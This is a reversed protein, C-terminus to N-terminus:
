DLPESPGARRHAPLLAAEELAWLQWAPRKPGLGSELKPVPARVLEVPQVPLREPGRVPGMGASLSPVLRPELLAPLPEQALAQQALQVATQERQLQVSAPSAQEREQLRPSRELV